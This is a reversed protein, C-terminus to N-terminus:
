RALGICIPMCFVFDLWGTWGAWGGMFGNGHTQVGRAWLTVEAALRSFPPDIPTLAVHLPRRDGCVV